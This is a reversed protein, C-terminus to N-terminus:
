ADGELISWLHRDRAFEVGRPDSRRHEAIAARLREVARGLRDIERRQEQLTSRMAHADDM